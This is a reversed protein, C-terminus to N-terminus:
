GRPAASRPCRHAPDAGRHLTWRKSSGTRGLDSSQSSGTRTARALYCDRATEAHELAEDFHGATLDSRAAREWLAAARTAVDTPHDPAGEPGTSPEAVADETHADTLLTAAAIFNAAARGPAGARESREAARGLMEIAQERIIGDKEDGPLAALADLYHRAIAEAIEEGDNAFVERLHAAVAQHRTRRERRSLTEYAVRRLMEQAFFYNGREPSLPDASVELVNRRVLEDLDVQVRAEERDSVAVLAEAPFSTGLVSAIAVLTRTPPDLADLRAALLAHLTDPVVLEGLEGVLHYAGEVAVVIGRDILSRVTEVAFLPIGEARATISSRAEPPMGPVLAEVLRDMSAHDLPDLSLMSRNRGVGFGVKIEEIGPRAFVLVFVPLDRTWDVLHDLFDLLGIDAHQADEVLLVVPAVAALREFFLRWGAFLEERSLSTAREGALEIGLLRALRAAVYDREEEAVFRVLGEHFKAAAVESSDEEAIGLRQRVIEALAWFAIGEGYSLCRGRHWLVTDVLGDAYKEFEWGLRSKGVGAPGSVVVLRPSRRDASLHFLEKLTRLEADRGVLPAELGEM